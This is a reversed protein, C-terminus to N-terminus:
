RPTLYVLKGHTASYSACYWWHGDRARLCQKNSFLGLGIASAPETFDDMFVVAGCEFCRPLEVPTIIDEDTVTTEDEGFDDAM